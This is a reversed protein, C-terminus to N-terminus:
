NDKLVLYLTYVSVSLKVGGGGGGFFFSWVFVLVFGLCFLGLSIGSLLRFPRVSLIPVFCVPDLLM